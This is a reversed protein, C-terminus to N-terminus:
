NSAHEWYNQQHENFEQGHDSTLVIISNDLYGMSEIVALIKGIEQDVFDVANLYRNYFPKPDLDNSLILRSCNENIPQYKIPFSQKDCFGHPANYFINLTFPKTHQSQLFHIAKQTTQRDWHGIDRGEGARINLDDFGLLVTKYM